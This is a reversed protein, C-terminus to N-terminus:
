LDNRSIRAKLEAVANWHHHRAHLSRVEKEQLMILAETWYAILARRVGDLKMFELADHFDGEFFVSTSRHLGSPYADDVLAGNHHKVWNKVTKFDHILRDMHIMHMSPRWHRPLTAFAVEHTGINITYYRGGSTSTFLSFTWAGQLHLWNLLTTFKFLQALFCSFEQDQFLRDIQPKRLVTSTDLQELFRSAEVPSIAFLERQGTVSATFKSRFSYHLHQEVQRWDAVQRFDHLFWPGLSKYPESANIEKIRKLPAFDTGGIKVFECGHSTLIYVHGEVRQPITLAKRKEM